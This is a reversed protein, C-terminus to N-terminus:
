LRGVREAARVQHQNPSSVAQWNSPVNAQFLNGGSCLASLVPVAAAVPDGIRGSRRRREDGGDDGRVQRDAGCRGDVQRAAASAMAQKVRQSSAADNRRNPSRCCRASGAAIYALPQGPNPHDSLWQPAGGGAQKEINEFVRALDRPDYGARAMMQVGLIDAQKEYERSYSLLWTGLGFQSGQSIM